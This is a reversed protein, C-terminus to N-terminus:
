APGTLLGLALLRLNLIGTARLDAAQPSIARSNSSPM